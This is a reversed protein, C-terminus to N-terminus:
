LATKTVDFIINIFDDKRISGQQTTDQTRFQAELQGMLGRDGSIKMMAQQAEHHRQQDERVM